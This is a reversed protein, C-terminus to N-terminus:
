VRAGAISSFPLVPYCSKIHILYVTRPNANCGETKHVSIQLCVCVESREELDNDLKGQLKRKM